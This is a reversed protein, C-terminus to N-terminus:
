VKVTGIVGMVGISARRFRRPRGQGPLEFGGRYRSVVAPDRMPVPAGCIEGGRYSSVAVSARFLAVM